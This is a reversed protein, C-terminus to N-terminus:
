ECNTPLMWVEVQLIHRLFLSYLDHRLDQLSQRVSHEPNFQFFALMLHQCVNGSLHALM